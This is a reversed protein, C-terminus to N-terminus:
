KLYKTVVQLVEEKDLKVLWEDFGANLGKEKTEPNSLSTLALIPLHKWKENSKLRQLLGWGDMEPMEIDSLILDVENKELSVLAQEGNEATFIEFGLSKLYEKIVTLFFPTDEVLLLRKKEVTEVPATIELSLPEGVELIYYLDLLLTIKGDILTSGLIGDHQISGSGQELQLQINKTDIVQNILIGVPIRAQKPIIVSASEQPVESRNIPLYDELRLIRMQEGMYEIYEKEGIKQIRDLELSDVRRILPITLAFQEEAGNDFILISQEENNIKSTHEEILEEKIQENSLLQNREVFGPIDMIMSISGDGLITAGSFIKLYKLYEPMPKVVIEESGLIDDVVVGVRQEGSRVILIRLSEREQIHELLVKGSGAGDVLQLGEALDVLPLLVGRIRFVNQGQVKGLTQNFDESKLMVLEELNVQPFAFRLNESQVILCSIIAMTLPLNMNITTGKGAETILDITGGLAEINSRVVDMGVGRGSVSSVQEATSFGPMFILASKEKNSMAAVQEATVVGKNIALQSIKEPDVGKGDDAVQVIVQGSKHFAKLLLTGKIPKGIKKRAEPLEIGHDATNRVIHTLPDSLSEIISKDLEVDNGETVLEIEKGLQQALERIVRPFKSFVIGIPQMRTNMIEEQLGTTILNFNQLISALGNVDKSVPEMMRIIQNRALVLEGALDVLKNLRSVHVRISEDTARKPTKVSTSQSPPPPAKPPVAVVEAVEKQPAEEVVEEAKEEVVIINKDIIPPPTQAEIPALSISVTADEVQQDVIVSEGIQEQFIALDQFNSLNLLSVQHESLEIGDKALDPSMVTMFLFIFPLDEELDGELDSAHEIDLYSDLFRGLNELNEIYQLPTKGHNLIDRKLYAKVAYIHMQEEVASKIDEVSLYFQQVKSPADETEASAGSSSEKKSELKEASASSKTDSEGSTLSALHEKMESVDRQDSTKPDEMMQTLLDFGALLADIHHTELELKNERALSLLAEMSHAIGSINELGFFGAGGKVSHVSRFLLNITEIDDTETELKLLNPEIMMMNEQAEEIFGELLEEDSLM